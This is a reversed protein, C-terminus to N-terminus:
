LRGEYAAMMAEDETLEKKQRPTVGATRAPVAARLQQERRSLGTTQTQPQKTPKQQSQKWETFKDLSRGIVVSSYSKLVRDAYEQPQTKLWRRYETDPPVGGESEDKDPLGIMEMWGPHTESLEERCSESRIRSLRAEAATEAAKGADKILGSTFEQSLGTVELESLAKNIVKLQAQAFDPYESGFDGFDELKVQVKQGVPTRAQARLVQEMAGVRGYVDDSYKKHNAELAEIRQKALTLDDVPESPTSTSEDATADPLEPDPNASAASEVEPTNTPTSEPVDNAYGALLDAEFQEDSQEVSATEPLDATAQTM